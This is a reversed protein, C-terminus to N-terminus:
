RPAMKLRAAPAAELVEDIREVLIATSASIPGWSVSRRRAWLDSADLKSVNTREDAVGVGCCRRAHGAQRDRRDRGSVAAAGTPM